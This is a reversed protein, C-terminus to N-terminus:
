LCDFTYLYPRSGTTYSEWVTGAPEVDRFIAQKGYLNCHARAANKPDGKVGVLFLARNANGELFEVMTEEESTKVCGALAALTLTGVLFLGLPRGGSPRAFRIM